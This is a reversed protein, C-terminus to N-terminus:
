LDPRDTMVDFGVGVGRISRLKGSKDFCLTMRRSDGIDYAWCTLDEQTKTDQIVSISSPTGLTQEVSEQPLDTAMLIRAVDAVEENSPGPVKQYKTRYLTIKRTQDASLSDSPIKPKKRCCPAWVFLIAGLLLVAIIALLTKM